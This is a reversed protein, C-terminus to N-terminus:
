SLMSLAAMDQVKPTVKTEPYLAPSDFGRLLSVIKSLPGDEAFVVESLVSDESGAPDPLILDKLEGLIGVVFNDATVPDDAKLDGDSVQEAISRYTRSHTIMYEKVVDEMQAPKLSIADFIPSGVEILMKRHRKDRLFRAAEKDLGGHVQWIEHEEYKKIHVERALMALVGKCLDRKTIGLFMLASNLNLGM